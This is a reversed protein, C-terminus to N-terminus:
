RNNITATTTVIEIEGTDVLMKKMRRSGRIAAVQSKILQFSLKTRVYNAVVSHMLDKKEAIKEILKDIVRGTEFGYGGFSSFVIPSFSGHEVQIVRRNYANKKQTENTRFVSELNNSLHSRAFPHFVKIDFFAMEFDQWFGRAAIDLRAQDEKNAGKPLEEGSLPQLNPETHVEHAIDDMLNAILDRMGDHRRHVYGGKKCIMAHDMDFKQGCACNTPLRKVGWRYRLSIADFFERKNLVYGEERLPLSTLWASAGKMQALDNGRKQDISM